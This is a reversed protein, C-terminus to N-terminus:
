PRSSFIPLFSFAAQPGCTEKARLCNCFRMVTVWKTADFQVLLFRTSVIVRILSAITMLSSDALLPRGVLQEMASM